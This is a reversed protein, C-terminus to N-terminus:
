NGGAKKRFEKLEHDVEQLYHLLGDADSKNLSGSNQFNCIIELSSCISSAYDCLVDPDTFTGSCSSFSLLAMCLMASLFIKKM